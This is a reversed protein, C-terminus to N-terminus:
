GGKLLHKLASAAFGSLTEVMAPKRAADGHWCCDLRLLRLYLLETAGILAELECSISLPWGPLRPHFPQLRELRSLEARSVSGALYSRHSLLWKRARFLLLNVRFQEWSLSALADQGLSCPMAARATAFAAPMADALVLAECYLEETVHRNLDNCFVRARPMAILVQALRKHAM